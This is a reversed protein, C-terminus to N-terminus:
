TRHKSGNAREVEGAKEATAPLELQVSAAADMIQRMEGAKSAGFANEFVRQARDWYPRGERIRRLGAPTIAIMRARRDEKSRIIDLLGDRELPRLNHGLTARDMVLLEALQGMRMPGRHKLYGLLTFQSATLGVPALCADYFRTVNRAARRIRACNCRAPPDMEM